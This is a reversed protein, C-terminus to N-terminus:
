PLRKIRDRDATDADVNGFKSRGELASSVLDMYERPHTVALAAIVPNVADVVVPAREIEVRVKRHFDLIHAPRKHIVDELRLVVDTGKIHKMSM